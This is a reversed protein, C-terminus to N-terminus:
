IKVKQLLFYREAVDKRSPPTVGFVQCRSQVPDIIKEVYNCTLIFRTHRSFTETINRLAAQANPTMYDAEDLIVVKLPNFGISSSFERIKNRVTYRIGFDGNWTGHKDEKDPM